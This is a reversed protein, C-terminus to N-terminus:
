SPASATGRMADILDQEARDLLEQPDILLIMRGDRELNAFREIVKSRKSTLEPSPRLQDAAVSLVESVSDVVFGALSKGIRVVVVRSKRANGGTPAEFRRRQDIVPVIQGRLNMVGEVFKPTKPLRTLKDPLAVVESVCAIPLGYHEDGLQFIVFQETGAPAAGDAMLEEENDSQAALREALGDELLHDTSLISMLRRGEELRCIAQIHAEQKGRTLVLPVPDIQDATARVIAKLSDVVLGVRVGGISAVVIRAASGAKGAGFGLLTALSVLPLLRNRLTVAGLMADDTKPVVAVTAPVALVEQVHALPLAFEQGAIEFSFFAETPAAASSDVETAGTLASSAALAPKSMAGFQQNLLADVDILRVPDKGSRLKDSRQLASAEDVTLGVPVSDGVVVVRRAASADPEKGLLVALSVIPIVRGRLNAVGVLGPPSLPIRTVVPNRIVEAVDNAPIAMREGAVAITLAQFAQDKAKPREAKPM